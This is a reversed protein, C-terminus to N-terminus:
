PRPPAPWRDQFVRGIYRARAFDAMRTVNKGDISVTGVDPQLKGAVMNLVTSKGAGNSGIVTVFEGADLSLNINRLAKRENVTGPFFTRSLNTIELMPASRKKRPPNSWRTANPASSPRSWSRSAKWKPLLLAAVVLVASILKMDNVEMGASLALQIVLRYIVAGFVVALAALWIWRQSFIAQGVIM